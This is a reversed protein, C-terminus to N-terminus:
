EFRQDSAKPEFAVAGLWQWTTALRFPWEPRGAEQAEPSPEEELDSAVETEEPTAGM